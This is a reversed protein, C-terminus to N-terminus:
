GGLSTVANHLMRARVMSTQDGFRSLAPQLEPVKSVDFWSWPQKPWEGDRVLHTNAYQTERQWRDPLKWGNVLAISVGYQMCGQQVLAVVRPWPAGPFVQGTESVGRGELDLSPNIYIDCLEGADSLRVMSIRSMWGQVQDDALCVVHRGGGGVCVRYLMRLDLSPNDPLNIM